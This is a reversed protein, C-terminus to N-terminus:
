SIFFSVLYLYPFWNFVFVLQFYFNTAIMKITLFCRDKGPRSCGVLM